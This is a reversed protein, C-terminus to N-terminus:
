AGLANIGAQAVQEDEPSAAGSVGVAGACDGLVMIPLAGQVLTYNLSLMTMRDRAREEWGHTSRRSLAATRGKAIATEVNGPSAGDMRLLGILHGGDDHVSIAMNWRNRAAEAEAAALIKQVDAHNLCPKTRM